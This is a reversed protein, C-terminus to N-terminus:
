GPAAVAQVPHGLETEDAVWVQNRGNQKALYLMADAKALLADPTAHEPRMEAVGASINIRITQGPLASSTGVATQGVSIPQDAVAARIREAVTAAGNLNTEPCVVLFEEGGLRGSIDSLRLHRRLNNAFEQLVADGVGHGYRDNVQKFHDIDLVICALPRQHRQALAWAERFREFLWHRNALGTLEDTNALKELRQNLIAFDANVKHVEIRGHLLEEQIALIREGVQIRALLERRNHPKTLCDDAGAELGRVINEEGGHASLLIVYVMGLTNIRCERRISRCLELGDLEPMTWDAVIIGSSLERIANLAEKGNSRAVVEYGAQELQQALLTRSAPEDEAVVIRRRSNDGM